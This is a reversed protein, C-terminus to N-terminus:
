GVETFVLALPIDAMAQDFYADAPTGIGLLDGLVDFPDAFPGSASAALEHERAKDIVDARGKWELYQAQYQSLWSAIRAQANQLMTEARTDFAIGPAFAQWLLRDQADHDGSVQPDLVADSAVRSFLARSGRREMRDREGALVRAVSARGSPPGAQQFAGSGAGAGAVSAGVIVVVGAGSVAAGAAAISTAAWALNGALAKWFNRAEYPNPPDAVSALAGNAAGYWDRCFGRWAEPFRAMM